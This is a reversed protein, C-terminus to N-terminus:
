YKQAHVHGLQHVLLHGYDGGAEEARINLPREKAIANQASESCAKEISNVNLSNPWDLERINNEKVFIKVAKTKYPPAGGHM